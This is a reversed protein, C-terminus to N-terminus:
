VIVGGGGLKVSDERLAEIRRCKVFCVESNYVNCKCEDTFLFVYLVVCDFLLHVSHHRKILLAEDQGRGHMGAIALRYRVNTDWDVVGLGAGTCSVTAYLNAFMDVPLQPVRTGVLAPYAM